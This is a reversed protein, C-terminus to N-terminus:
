LIAPPARLQPSLFYLYTNSVLLLRTLSEDFESIDIPALQIKQPVKDLHHQCLNCDQQEITTNTVDINHAHGALAFFLFVLLLLSTLKHRQKLTRNTYMM